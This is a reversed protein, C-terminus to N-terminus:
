EALVTTMRSPRVIFLWCLCRPHHSADQRLRLLWARLASHQSITTSARLAHDRPHKAHQRTPPAFPARAIALTTNPEPAAVPFTERHRVRYQRTASQQRTTPNASTTVRATLQQRPRHSAPASPFLAIRINARARPVQPLDSGILLRERSTPQVEGYPM